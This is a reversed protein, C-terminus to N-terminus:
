TEEGIKFARSILNTVHGVLAPWVAYTTPTGKEWSLVSEAAARAMDATPLRARLEENAKRWSDVIPQIVGAKRYRELALEKASGPADEILRQWSRLREAEANYADREAEVARLEDLLDRAAFRLLHAGPVDWSSSYILRREIEARREPTMREPEPQTPAPTM